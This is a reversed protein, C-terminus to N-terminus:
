GGILPRQAAAASETFSVIQASPVLGAAKLIFDEIRQMPARLRELDSVIYRQTVDMHVRHNALRKITYPSTDIAEAVTIFTRRLDHLIFTLGSDAMVRAMHRKPEILYGSPGEGPFVFASTAHEFRTKLLALLHQGIPLCHPDSNKTDAIFISAERLDVRDWTLRAAENRRLGTLILFVLYDAVTQAMPEDSAKLKRVAAFWAPLDPVKIVTRRRKDRFWARNQTLRDVPNSTVIRGGYGDELNAIAFNFLSRLTRMTQNAYAHGSAEGLDRHRAAVMDKSITLIPRNQWDGLAIKLTRGYDYVTHPKLQTRVRKFEEFVQALTIKSVREREKEEIPNVGLAVQGIFGQAKIRAQALNIEGVRGITLRKVKGEIRRELIFSRAGAATIRLGFGRTNSDRFFAQGAEPPPLTEVLKQTLRVSQNPSRTSAM